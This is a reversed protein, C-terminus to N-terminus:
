KQADEYLGQELDCRSLLEYNLAVGANIKYRPQNWYSLAYQRCKYYDKLSLLIRVSITPAVAEVRRAISKALDM